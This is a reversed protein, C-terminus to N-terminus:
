ADGIGCIQTYINAFICMECTTLKFLKIFVSRLEKEEMGVEM